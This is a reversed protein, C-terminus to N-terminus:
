IDDGWAETLDYEAERSVSPHFVGILREEPVPLRVPPPPPRVVPPPTLRVPPPLPPPPPYQARVVRGRVVFGYPFHPFHECYYCILPRRGRLCIRDPWPLGRLRRMEEAAQLLTEKSFDKLRAEMDDYLDAYQQQRREGEKLDTRTQRTGRPPPPDPPEDAGDM